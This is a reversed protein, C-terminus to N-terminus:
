GQKHTVHVNYISVKIKVIKARGLGHTCQKKV